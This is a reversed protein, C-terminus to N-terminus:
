SCTLDRRAQERLFAARCHDTEFGFTLLRFLADVFAALPTAVPNGRAAYRGLFGSITERPDPPHGRGTLWWVPVYACSQFAADISVLLVLMAPVFRRALGGICRRLIM